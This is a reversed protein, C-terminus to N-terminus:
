VRGYVADIRQELRALREDHTELQQIVRGELRGFKYLMTGFTLTFGAISVILEPTIM